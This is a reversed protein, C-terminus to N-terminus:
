QLTPKATLNYRRERKISRIDIDHFAGYKRRVTSVALGLAEDENHAEYLDNHIIGCRRCHGTEDTHSAVLDMTIQFINREIPTCISTVRKRANATSASAGRADAKLNTGTRMQSCIQHHALPKYVFFCGGRSHKAFLDCSCLCFHRPLAASATTHLDKALAILGTRVVFTSFM